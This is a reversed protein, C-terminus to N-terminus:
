VHARGIKAFPIGIFPIAGLFSLIFGILGLKETKPPETKEIGAENGKITDRKNVPAIYGKSLQNFTSTVLKKALPETRVKPQSLGKENHFEQSSSKKNSSILTVMNNLVLFNKDTSAIPNMKDMPEPHDERNKVTRVTVSPTSAAVSKRQKLGPGRWENAYHNVYSVKGNHYHRTTTAFRSKTCSVALVAIIMLCINSTKM